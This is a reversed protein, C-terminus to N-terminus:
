GFRRFLSTGMRSLAARVISGADDDGIGLKAKLEALTELVLRERAKALWRAATARHVRFIPAIADITLGDAFAYRLLLKERPELRGLAVGFAAEFQEPAARRAEFLGSRCRSELRRRRRLVAGRSAAKARTERASVNILMHLVAARFWGRLDGTGAYGAVSPREGLFLRERVRQRVDDLGLPLSDFRRYGADVEDFYTREFSAIAAVDNQTCAWALFLQEVRVDAVRTTAGTARMKAALWAVFAEEGLAIGPCLDRPRVEAVRARLLAELSGSPGATPFDVSVAALTVPGGTALM